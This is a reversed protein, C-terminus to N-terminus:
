PREQPLRDLTVGLYEAVAKVTRVTPSAKDWKRVVGNGLGSGRELEALSIGKEACIDQINPLLCALEAIQEREMANM